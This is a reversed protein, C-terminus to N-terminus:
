RLIPPFARCRTKCAMQPRAGQSEKSQLSFRTEQKVLVQLCIWGSSHFDEATEPMKFVRFRCEGRGQEDIGVQESNALRAAQFCCFQEIILYESSKVLLCSSPKKDSRMAFTRAMTGFISIRKTPAVARSRSRNLAGPIFAARPVLTRQGKRRQEDVFRHQPEWTTIESQRRLPVGHLRFRYQILAGAHMAIPHPTVIELRLWPPTIAELNAADAFFPFVIELPRPLFLQTEVIFFGNKRSLHLGAAKDSAAEWVNM